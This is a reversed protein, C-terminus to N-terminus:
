QGWYMAADERTTEHVQALRELRRLGRHVLLRVSSDSRGMIAAV